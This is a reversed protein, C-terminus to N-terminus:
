KGEDTRRCVIGGTTKSLVDSAAGGGDLTDCLRELNASAVVMITGPSCDHELYVPLHDSVEKSKDMEVLFANRTPPKVVLGVDGVGSYRMSEDKVSLVGVSVRVKPFYTRVHHIVKHILEEEFGTAVSSYELIALIATYVSLRISVDKQDKDINVARFLLLFDSGDSGAKACTVCSLGKNVLECKVRGSTTDDCLMSLQGAADQKRREYHLLVRLLGAAAPLLTCLVVLDNEGLIVKEQQTDIYLVGVLENDHLLPFSIASYIQDRVISRSIDTTDDVEPFSFREPKRSDWMRKLITSSPSFNSSPAMALLPVLRKKGQVRYLASRSLRFKKTLFSLLYRCFDDLSDPAKNFFEKVMQEAAGKAQTFQLMKLRRTDMQRSKQREDKFIFVAGHRKHGFVIVDNHNLKITGHKQEICNVTTPAGIELRYFGTDENVVIRGHFDAVGKM